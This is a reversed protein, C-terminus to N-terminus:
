RGVKRDLIRNDLGKSDFMDRLGEGFLNVALVLLSIALGPYVLLRPAIYFYTRAEALMSGWEPTPPRVGFGLFSLASLTLLTRGLDLTSLVTVPQLLNPVLHRVMIRRRTSGLARSAEVFTRERLSLTAGRIVRAYGPWGLLAVVLVLRATGGGLLKIVVMAVILLPLAQVVEVTRMVVSDVVGGRLGALVGLLVGLLTIGVTAGLAMAVSTRGGYLIRAAMDRGLGDTGLPHAWSSPARLHATDTGVPDGAVWPTVLLATLVLALVVAGLLAPRDGTLRRVVKSAGGLPRNADVVPVPASVLDTLTM